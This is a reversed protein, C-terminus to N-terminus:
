GEIPPDGTVFWDVFIGCQDGRVVAYCKRRQMWIEEADRSSLLRRAINDIVLNGPNLQEGAVDVITQLAWFESAQNQNQFVGVIQM